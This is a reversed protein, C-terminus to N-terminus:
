RIFTDFLETYLILDLFKWFKGSGFILKRYFCFHPVRDSYILVFWIMLKTPLAHKYIMFLIQLIPNTNSILFNYHCACFSLVRVFCINKTNSQNSTWIVALESKILYQTNSLSKKKLLICKFIDFINKLNPVKHDM